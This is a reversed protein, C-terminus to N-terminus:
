FQIQLTMKKNILFYNIRATPNKFYVISIVNPILRSVNTTMMKVLRGYLTTPGQISEIETFTEIKCSEQLINIYELNQKWSAIRRKQM